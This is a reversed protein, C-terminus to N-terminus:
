FSNSPHLYLGNQGLLNFSWELKIVMDTLTIIDLGFGGSYLMKNSLTNSGTHQNYVYGSNIFAKAYVKFPLKSWRDLFTFKTRPMNLVKDLVPIAFSAKMYGGAVGDIVYGEYGQLFMNDHGIFQQTIYPQDFPLKLMGTLRLNFFNKRGVHWTGSTKANLQWLNVPGGLGRKTLSAEVLYGKTPYPLFDVDIYNLKYYLDTYSIQRSGNAYNPNLKLVTDAVKEQSYGIGFTHRTKIAKRYTVDVYSRFFNHVFDDNLTRVPVVKNHETKYNIARNNGYQFNFNTFWKMDSDLYLGNYQLTVQRTFGNMFNIHLRDNRGTLNRHTLRIGYNLRSFDKNNQTAWHFFSNDVPKIFPIPFIYWREKVDVLVNVKNDGIKQLETHAHIFLGTNMLQSSAEKIRKELVGPAYYSCPEFRLERLIAAPKTKENGSIIIDNLLVNEEAPLFTSDPLLLPMEIRDQSNGPFCMLLIICKVLALRILNLKM